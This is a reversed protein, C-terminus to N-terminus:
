SIEQSPPQSRPTATKGLHSFAMLTAVFSLVMKPKVEVIDEWLLFLSCGLKRASSIAYKANLKKEEDTAGATVHARDVCRPEVAALLEILFTGTALSKDSCDRMSGAGGAARVQENAWKVMADDTLAGGGPTSAGGRQRVSSLVGLLHTRM